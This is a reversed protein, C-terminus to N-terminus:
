VHAFDLSSTFLEDLLSKKLAKSQDIHAQALTISQETETFRQGIIQQIHIEPLMIPASEVDFRSIHPLDTGQQNKILHHSFAPSHLYAWLYEVDINDSLIFRGVRQLLLAPLDKQRVRAIKFGETIFPRDMAVIIDGENLIYDSVEDRRESPWYRTYENGWHLYGVGVNSCRLLRDGYETFEKSPFPYGSQFEAVTGLKIAKGSTEAEHFETVALSTCFQQLDAVVVMLSGIAEEVAWLIEAIRRQENLPPLPFEYRALASWKTRPSLSGASTKLAHDYFGETQVIFPLLDPLLRDQKAEMVIIDGSCIGDFEAIAAKRQYARRRGFLVQGARFVRTFTTATEDILGWRRIKLSEPDLHELGLYREFGDELPTRTSETVERAVDGFRVISTTDNRNTM